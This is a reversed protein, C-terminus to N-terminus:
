DIGEDGREEEDDKAKRRGLGLLGAGLASAAAAAAAMGELEGGTLALRGGAPQARM